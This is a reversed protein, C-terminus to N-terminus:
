GNFIEVKLGSISIVDGGVIIILNDVDFSFIVHSANM